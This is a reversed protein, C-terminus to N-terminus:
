LYYGIVDVLFDATQSTFVTLSEGTGLSCTIGNAVTQRAVYNLSSTGPNAVGTPYAALYGAGAPGVVTLNAVVARAHAPVGSSNNKVDVARSAGAALAGKTVNTPTKGARSDYVRVPAALVTLGGALEPGALRYFEGTGPGFWLTAQGTTGELYLEGNPHTGKVYPNQNIGTTSMEIPAKNSNTSTFTSGSSGKAVLPTGNDSQAIMGIGGGQFAYGVVGAALASGFTTASGPTATMGLVGARVASYSLLAAPINSTTADFTSDQVVFATKATTNAMRVETSATSNNQTETQMTAAAAAASEPRLLGTGVVVGAAGVALSKLATRRSTPTDPDVVAPTSQPRLGAVTARLEALEQRLAAIEDNTENM